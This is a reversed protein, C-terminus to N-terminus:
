QQYDNRPARPKPPLAVKVAIPRGKFDKGDLEEIAKDADEDNQFNVFGFGKSRGTFKDKIIVVPQRGQDDDAFPGFPSFLAQLDEDTANWDINGVFLKKSM